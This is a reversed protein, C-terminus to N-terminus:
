YLISAAHFHTMPTKNSYHSKEGKLHNGQELAKKATEVMDRMIWSTNAEDEPSTIYKEVPTWSLSAIESEQPKLTIDESLRVAFAFNIDSRDQINGFYFSTMRLKEPTIKIGLEENLARVATQLPAEREEMTETPPKEKNHTSRKEKVLLTKELTANFVVTTVGLGTTKHKPYACEKLQHDKLCKILVVKDNAHHFYFGNEVAPGMLGTQHPSLTLIIMHRSAIKGKAACEALSNKLVKAVVSSTPKDLKSLDLSLNNYKDPGQVQQELMNRLTYKRYASYTGYLLGLVGFAVPTLRTLIRMDTTM